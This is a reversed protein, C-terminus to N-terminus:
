STKVWQRMLEILLTQYPRGSAKAKEKFIKLLREPVRLSILKRKGEDGFALAQFDNLFDAIEDKSLTQDQILRERSFIQLARNNM